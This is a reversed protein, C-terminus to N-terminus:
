GDRSIKMGVIQKTPGLDKISLSKSLAKKLLPIKKTGNEAILMDDVYLFHIIFDEEAYRKM